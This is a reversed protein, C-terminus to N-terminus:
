SNDLFYLNNTQNEALMRYHVIFSFYIVHNSYNEKSANALKLSLGSPFFLAHVAGPEAMVNDSSM